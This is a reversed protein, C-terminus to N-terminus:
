EASKQEEKEEDGPNDPGMEEMVDLLNDDEDYVYLFLKGDKIVSETFTNGNLAKMRIRVVM